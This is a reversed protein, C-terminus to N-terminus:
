LAPEVVDGNGIGSLRHTWRAPDANLVPDVVERNETYTLPTATADPVPPVNGLEDEFTVRPYESPRDCRTPAISSTRM